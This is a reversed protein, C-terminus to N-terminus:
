EEFIEDLISKEEKRELPMDLTESEVKLVTQKKPKKQKKPLLEAGDGKLGSLIQEDRLVARQKQQIIRKNRELREEVKQRYSKETM